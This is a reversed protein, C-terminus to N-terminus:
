FFVFTLLMQLVVLSSIGLLILKGLSMSGKVSRGEREMCAIMILISSFAVVGISGLSKEMIEGKTIVDWISLIGMFAFFVVSLTLIVFTAKKIGIFVQLYTAESVTLTTETDVARMGSVHDAVMLIVAVVSILAITQISKSFIEDSLLEWIGLMSLATAIIILVIFIAASINAFNKM